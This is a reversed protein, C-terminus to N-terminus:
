SVQGVRTKNLYLVWEVFANLLSTTVTIMLLALDAYVMRLAIRDGIYGFLFQSVLGIFWLAAGSGLWVLAAPWVTRYATQLFSGLVIFLGPVAIMLVLWADESGFKKGNSHDLLFM